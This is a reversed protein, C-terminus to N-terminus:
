RRNPEAALEGVMAAIRNARTEARKASYVQYLYQKKVSVSLSDFAQRAAPAEDLAERLDEHVVLAEVDDYQSWSGDAIAEGIVRQGRETMLGSAVLREIRTKNLASWIGGKRRPSFWQIRRDDDARRTVSDIWGFCLAEEVLEDYLPGDLSSSKNRYVVWLGDGRDANASLWTRWDARSAPILVEKGNPSDPQELDAVNTM